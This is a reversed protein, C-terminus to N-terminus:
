GAPVAPPLGNHGTAPCLLGTVECHLTLAAVASVCKQVKHVNADNHESATNLTVERQPLM